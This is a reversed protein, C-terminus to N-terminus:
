RINFAAELPTKVTVFVGDKIPTRHSRRPKALFEREEGSYRLAFNLLCKARTSADFWWDENFRDLASLAEEAPRNTLIRAFVEADAGNDPDRFVELQVMADAGFHERLKPVAENLLGVLFSNRALLQAVESGTLRFIPQLGTLDSQPVRVNDVPVSNWKSSYESM